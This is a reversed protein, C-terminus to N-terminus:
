RAWRSNPYRQDLLKRAERARDAKGIAEWLPVLHSLAEAHPEPLANYLVDVTLFALLADKTKGAKLYCTGLANHALAQLKAAEPSTATILNSLLEIGADAQGTDALCVARLMTVLAQQEQAAPSDIKAQPLDSLQKLAAAAKGQAQLARASLLSSKAKTEAWPAAALKRYYIEAKDHDGRHTLLDGLVECAEYYHYSTGHETLFRYMLKGAEDVAGQGALALRAASLAQYYDIEQQIAARTVTARNVKALAQQADAFRQGALSSRAQALESPEGAFAISRIATADVETQGRAAQKVVVKEPTTAIIEGSVVGRNTTVRDVAQGHAVIAPVAAALLALLTSCRTMAIVM